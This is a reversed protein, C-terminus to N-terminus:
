FMCNKSNWISFIFRSLPLPVGVCIFWGCLSSKQTGYGVDMSPAVTSCILHNGFDLV